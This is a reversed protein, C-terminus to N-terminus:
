AASGSLPTAPGPLDLRLMSGKELERLFLCVRDHAPTVRPGLRRELEAAIDGVNRAGDVLGWVCSGIEDLHVKYFPKSLRPQVFRGLLGKPFKPRLLTTRGDDASESGVCRVPVLDLFNQDPRRKRAM